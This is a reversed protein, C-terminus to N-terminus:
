LIRRNKPGRPGLLIGHKEWIPLVEYYTLYTIHTGECIAMNPQYKRGREHSILRGGGLPLCDTNECVHRINPRGDPGWWYKHTTQRFVKRIPKDLKAYKNWIIWLIELVQWDTHSVKGDCLLSGWKWPLIELGLVLWCGFTQRSFFVFIKNQTKFFFPKCYRWVLCVAVRRNSVPFNTWFTWFSESILIQTIPQLSPFM